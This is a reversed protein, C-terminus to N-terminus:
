LFGGWDITKEIPDIKNREKGCTGDTQAMERGQDYIVDFSLM